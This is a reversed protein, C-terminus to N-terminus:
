SEASQSLLKRLIQNVTNVAYPKPIVPVGQFLGSSDAEVAYGTTLAFPIKQEKLTKVLPVSSENGLRLDLFVIRYQNEKLLVKAQDLNTALDVSKIGSSKVMDELDMLILFNDEVILCRDTADNMAHAVGCWDQQGPFFCHFSPTAV